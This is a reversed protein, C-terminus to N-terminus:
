LAARPAGTGPPGHLLVGKVHSVGMAAAVGPAMARSAFARRFLATLEADLGGVGLARLKSPSFSAASLVPRADKKSAVRPAVPPPPTDHLFRLPKAAVPTPASSQTGSGGDGPGAWRPDFLPVASAASSAAADSLVGTRPSIRRGLSDREDPASSQSADSPASSASYSPGGITGVAPPGPTQAAASAATSCTRRSLLLAAAHRRLIHNLM